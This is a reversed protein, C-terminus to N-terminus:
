RVMFFNEFEGFPKVSTSSMTTIVIRAMRPVMPNRDIRPYEDIARSEDLIEASEMAELARDRRHETDPVQGTGSPALPEPLIPPTGTRM